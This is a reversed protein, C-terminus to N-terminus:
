ARGIGVPKMATEFTPPIGATHPEREESTPILMGCQSASDM